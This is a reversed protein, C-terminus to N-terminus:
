FNCRGASGQEPDPRSPHQRAPHLAWDRPGGGRGQRWLPPPPAHRRRASRDGEEEERDDDRERHEEAEVRAEGGTLVGSM